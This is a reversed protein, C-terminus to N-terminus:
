SIKETETYQEWLFNAITEKVAKTAPRGLLDCYWFQFPSQNIDVRILSQQGGLQYLFYRPTDLNEGRKREELLRNLSQTLGEPGQVCEYPPLSNRDAM